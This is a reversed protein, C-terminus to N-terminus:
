TLPTSGIDSKTASKASVYDVARGGSAKGCCINVVRCTESGYSLYELSREFNGLWKSCGASLVTEGTFAM